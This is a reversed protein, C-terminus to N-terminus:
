FDHNYFTGHLRWKSRDRNGSLPCNFPFRINIFALENPITERNEREKRWKIYWRPYRSKYRYLMFSRGYHCVAISFVSFPMAHNCPIFNRQCFFHFITFFAFIPFPHRPIFLCVLFVTTIGPLFFFFFIGALSLESVPDRIWYDAAISHRFSFIFVRLKGDISTPKTSGRDKCRTVRARFHRFTFM